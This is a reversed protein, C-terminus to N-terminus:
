KGKDDLHATDHEVQHIIIPMLDVSDAPLRASLFLLDLEEGCLIAVGSIPYANKRLYSQTGVGDTEAPTQYEVIEKNRYVLKDKTYPGFPFSSAPEIGEEIVNRVFGRHDPFIRAIMRAVSFRGSTDGISTAFEIAPGSFGSWNDTFLGAANIPQPAIYLTSGNSGYTGFCYWSRPGLVGLGDSAQYYALRHAAEATISVLKSRGQPAKLPGVQGDSKCGVFPVRVVQHQISGTNVATQSLLSLPMCIALALFIILYIFEAALLARGRRKVSDALECMSEQTIVRGQGLSLSAEASDVLALIEARTREREEWLLLAEEVADEERSLRGTKVAMSFFAKQDTSLQVDM